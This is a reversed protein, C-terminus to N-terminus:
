LNRPTLISDLRIVQEPKSPDVNIDLVVQIAASTGITRGVNRTFVPTTGNRVNSALPIETGWVNTLIDGEARVIEAAQTDYRYRVQTTGAGEQVTLILCSSLPCTVTATHISLAGRIERGLRALAIRAHDLSETENSSVRITRSASELFVLAGSTIVFMIAIGITLEFATFGREDRRRRFFRAFRTVAHVRGM